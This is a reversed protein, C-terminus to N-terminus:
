KVCVNPKQYMRFWLREVGNVARVRGVCMGTKKQAQGGVGGGWRNFCVAALVSATGAKFAQMGYGHRKWV